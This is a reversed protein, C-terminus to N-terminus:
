PITYIEKAPDALSHWQTMWLVAGITVWRRGPNDGHKRKERTSKGTPRNIDPRNAARRSRNVLRQIYLYQFEIANKGLVRMKRGRLCTYVFSAGNGVSVGDLSQERWGVRLSTDTQTM